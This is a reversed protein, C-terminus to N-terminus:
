LLEGGKAVHNSLLTGKWLLATAHAEVVDHSTVNVEHMFRLEPTVSIMCLYLLDDPWHVVYICVVSFALLERRHCDANM